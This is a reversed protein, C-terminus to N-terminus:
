LRMLLPGLPLALPPTNDHADIWEGYNDWWARWEPACTAYFEEDVIKPDEVSPAQVL